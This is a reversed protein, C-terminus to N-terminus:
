VELQRTAVMGIGRGSIVQPTVGSILVGNERAENLYKDILAQM